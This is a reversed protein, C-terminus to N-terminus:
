HIWFEGARCFAVFERLCDKSGGGSFKEVISARKYVEQRLTGGNFRIGGGAPFITGDRAVFDGEEPATVYRGEFADHDPIDDLARDLADGLNRADEATVLQHENYCYSGEWEAAYQDILRRREESDDDDGLCIAYMDLNPKTGLPVWGFLRALELVESWAGMGWRFYGGKGSLDM